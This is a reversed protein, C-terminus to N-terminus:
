NNLMLPLSNFSTVIENIKAETEAKIKRDTKSMDTEAEMKNQCIECFDSHATYEKLQISPVTKQKKACDKKFKRQRYLYCRCTQCVYPPHINIFISTM